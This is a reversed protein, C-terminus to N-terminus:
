YLLCPIAPIMQFLFLSQFLTIWSVFWEHEKIDIAIQKAKTPSSEFEPML